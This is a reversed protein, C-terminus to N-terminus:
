EIPGSGQFEVANTGTNNSQVREIRIKGSRGDDLELCYLAGVEINKGTPLDFTGQWSKMRGLQEDVSLIGEINEIIIQDDHLIKGSFHQM